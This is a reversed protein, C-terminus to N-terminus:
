SARAMRSGTLKGAMCLGLCGIGMLALTSSSDPVTTTSGGQVSGGSAININQGSIIEGDVAGPTLGVQADPALIIGDLVSESSLGGSFQVGQTGTINFLIDSPSLGAAALIEASNLSLSGSINFVYSGGAELNVIDGNHLTFNTLNYVGPALNLTVNNGETISSFGVGGGSSALAAAQSSATTAASIASSLDFNTNITGSVNGSLGSNSAGTGLFVSGNIPLNGGDSLNGGAAGVNGTISGNPPAAALSVNGNGIELVAYNGAAGLSVPLAWAGSGFSVLGLAVMAPYFAKGKLRAVPHKLSIFRM